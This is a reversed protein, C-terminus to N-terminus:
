RQSNSTCRRRPTRYTKQPSVYNEEVYGGFGNKARYHATYHGDVIEEKIIQLSDPDRLQQTLSQRGDYIADSKPPKSEPVCTGILMAIGLIMALGILKDKM